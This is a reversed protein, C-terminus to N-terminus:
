KTKEAVKTTDEPFYFCGMSQLTTDAPAYGAKMLYTMEECAHHNHGLGYYCLAKYYKAELSNSDIELTKDFFKIAMQFNNKKYYEKGKRMYVSAAGKGCSTVLLTFVVLLVPLLLYKKM